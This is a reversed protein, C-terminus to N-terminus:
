AVFHSRRRRAALYSGVGAVLLLGGVTAVLGTPSGTIPLSGDDGGQGGSAPNVLIKATDNSPDLDKAGVPGNSLEVKGTLAGARDIRFSFPLAVKGGKRIVDYQYCLYARAGPRGGEEDQIDADLCNKPAKVATVGKPVTMTVVTYFDRGGNSSSAPGRNTYGIKVPVTEGVRATIRVEDAALDARQNGTVTLEVATENDTPRVDTQAARSTGGPLRTGTSELRLVGGTGQQDLTYSPQADAWDQATFWTATGPQINPASVDRPVTVGFGGDVRLARGPAIEDDFTCAFLNPTFHVLGGKSGYRCNQYRKSPTLGYAASVLLVVGRATEKGRNGVSLGMPVTAGPGGALTVAPGAVLDVGEGILVTSATTSTGTQPSTVTIRIRGEQGVEAGPRPLVPILLLNSRDNDIASCTLVTGKRTCARSSPNRVDAFAEVAGFDVTATYELPLRDGLVNLSVDKGPGGPALTINNAYTTFGAVTVVDPSAGPSAPAAPAPAASAVVCVGVVGLGALWRRTAHKRM